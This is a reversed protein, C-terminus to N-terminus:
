SDEDYDEYSDIYEQYKDPIVGGNLFLEEVFDIHPLYAEYYRGARIDADVLEDIVFTTEAGFISEYSNISTTRWCRYDPDLSLYFVVAGYGDGVGYGGFHLFDSSYEEPSLGHNDDDTFLVYGIGLSLVVEEMRRNLEAEQEDTFIDADDVVRKLNEGHFDTFGSTSEPYWYPMEAFVPLTLSFILAACFLVSLLKKM